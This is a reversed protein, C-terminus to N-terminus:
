RHRLHLFFAQGLRVLHPRERIAPDLEDRDIAHGETPACQLRTPAPRRRDLRQDLCLTALRRVQLIMNGAPQVNHHVVAAFHFEPRALYGPQRRAVVSPYDAVLRHHDNVYTTHCLIGLRASESGFVGSNQRTGQDDVPLRVSSVARTGPETAYRLNLMLWVTVGWNRIVSARRLM